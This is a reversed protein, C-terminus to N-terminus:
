NAQNAQSSTNQAPTRNVGNLQQQRQMAAAQAAQQQTSPLNGALQQTAAQRSRAGASRGKNLLCFALGPPPGWGPWFPYSGPRPAVPRTGPPDQSYTTDSRPATQYRVQM